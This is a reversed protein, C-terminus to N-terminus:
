LIPGAADSSTPSGPDNSRPRRIYRGDPQLDWADPNELDEMLKRDLTRRHQPDRVAVAVEVRRALNRGRWDASGIYYEPDGSNAFRYIRTHELYRGAIAVVRINGSLGPVGPRLACIGRVILDIRVGAASARYLGDVIERDAIGNLKVTMAGGRGARAHEIEREILGMFRRRMNFPAVILSPYDLVEADGAMTAFLNELDRGIGPDATFLGLDTYTAATTANLNGTGIFSYLRRTGGERRVVSAIKAHVKLSPPGYHVRIGASELTRAWEINRSEDFSAKVEILVMVNKGRHHARRLLRVLRSSRSTRYLTIRIEEVAPDKAAEYIFREFTRAFSHSPYRTLVDGRAIRDFVSMSKRFPSGRRVEPYRLEDIPLEALEHLIRLDLPAKIRYLDSEGLVSLRSEAETALRGLLHQQIDEPTDDEVEVRVIPQFPRQALHEAVAEVIDPVHEADLTLNGSRTVRFLFAEIPRKPELIRDLDQRIFEELPLFRRGGPLPVLRPLDGPLQILVLEEEGSEPQARVIFGPRLNRVHPFPGTAAVRIPAVTAHLEPAYSARLQARELADLDRWRVVDLGSERLDRVVQPYVEGDVLGVLRRTCDDILRLQEVPSLGDLTPKDNGLAVQRKFGGVRTMFFEDLNSGLISLFKVRELLPTRRDAALEVVRENFALQSLEMNLMSGPPLLVPRPGAAAAARQLAGGPNPSSMRRRPRM